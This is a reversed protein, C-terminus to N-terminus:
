AERRRRTQQKLAVVLVMLITGFVEIPLEASLMGHLQCAGDTEIRSCSRHKDM